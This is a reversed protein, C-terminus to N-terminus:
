PRDTPVSPRARIGAQAFKSRISYDRINLLFQAFLPTQSESAIGQFYDKPLLAFGLTTHYPALECQSDVVVKLDPLFALHTRRKLYDLMGYRYQTAFVYEEAIEPDNFGNRTTDVGFHEYM